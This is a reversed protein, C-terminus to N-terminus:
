HMNVFNKYTRWGLNFILNPVYTPLYKLKIKFSKATGFAITFLSLIGVYYQTWINDFLAQFPALLLSSSIGLYIFSLNYKLTGLVVPYLNCGDRYISLVQNDKSCALSHYMIYEDMHQPIYIIIFFIILLSSFISLRLFLNKSM